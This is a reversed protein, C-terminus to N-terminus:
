FHENFYHGQFESGSALSLGSVVHSGSNWSRYQTPSENVRLALSASMRTEISSTYDGWNDGHSAQVWSEYSSTTLSDFATFDDSNAPNCYLFDGYTDYNYWNNSGDWKNSSGSMEFQYHLFFVVNDLSGSSTYRRASIINFDM